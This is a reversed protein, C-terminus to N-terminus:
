RSRGSWTVFAMCLVLGLLAFVVFGLRWGLLGIVPDCRRRRREAWRSFAWMLAQAKIREGAPLWAVAHADPQSLMGGRRALCSVCVVHVFFEVGRRYARHVACMWCRDPGARPACRRDGALGDCNSFPMHCDSLVSSRAMQTKSLHLEASIPTAAVSIAVRQIYHYQWPSAFFVVWYRAHTAENHKRGSIRMARASRRCNVGGADTRFGEPLCLGGASRSCCKCHRYFSVLHLYQDQWDSRWPRM